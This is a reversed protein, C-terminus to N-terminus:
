DSVGQTKRDVRVSLCESYYTSYPVVQTGNRTSHYTPPSASLRWRLSIDAYYRSGSPSTYCYFSPPFFEPPFSAIPMHVLRCGAPQEGFFTKFVDGRFTIVRRRRPYRSRSALLRRITGCLERAQEHLLESPPSPDTYHEMVSEPVNQRLVWRQRGDRRVVLYKELQLSLCASM